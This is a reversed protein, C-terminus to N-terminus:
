GLSCAHGVARDPPLGLHFARPEHAVGLWVIHHVDAEARHVAVALLDRGLAPARGVGGLALADVDHVLDVQVEVAREAPLVHRAARAAEARQGATSSATCRRLGRVL